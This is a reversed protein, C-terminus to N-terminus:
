KVNLWEMPIIVGAKKEKSTLVHYKIGHKEAWQSYRTIKSVRGNDSFVIRLDVDPYKKKLLIHKKRDKPKFVGKTEVLIPSGTSTSSRALYFDCTYTHRQMVRCGAELKRENGHKDCVVGNIVNTYYSFVCLEDHEYEYEVGLNKLQKDAAIELGSAFGLRRAAEQTFRNKSM